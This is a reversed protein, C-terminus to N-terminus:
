TIVKWGGKSGSMTFTDGVKRYNTSRIVKTFWWCHDFNWKVVQLDVYYKPYSIRVGPALISDEPMLTAREDIDNINIDDGIHMLSGVPNSLVKGHWLGGFAAEYGILKFNISSTKDASCWNAVNGACWMEGSSHMFEPILIPDEDDQEAYFEEEYENKPKPIDALVKDLLGM